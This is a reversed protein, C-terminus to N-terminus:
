ATEWFPDSLYRIGGDCLITVVVADPPLKEALHLAALVNAASSVGVFLGEVAALQRALAYSEETNVEIFEDPLREDYFEPRITSAMHKTGEIGHFPSDPQVAIVKVNPNLEKLRRACGTFTGSTGMGCIFHTIRHNSQEWIELATGNYHAKWNEDNAYQNPYFYKEPNQEVEKRAALLAGDSSELPDTEVIQANYRRMLGKRENSANAPLYLKVPYGLYAGMMAYAIGTNGSTADIIIKGPKLSGQKIGDLIMAKAARDKVSGSPNCFEAKAFLQAGAHPIKRLELLPTNGVLDLINM